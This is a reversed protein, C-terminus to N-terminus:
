QVAERIITTPSQFGGFSLNVVDAGRDVAWRIGAAVNADTAQGAADIVKVPLVRGRWMVGAMGRGDNGTAAAVTTVQTGHGLEDDPNDDDNVFDRGPLLRGALDPHSARVGSDVVALTLDDSGTTLDWAEPLRVLNANSAQSGAFRPDNPVAAVQRVHNPEATEVRGDAALESTVADVPRTGASFLLFDTGEVPRILAVGHDRAIREAAEAPVGPQLRVLVSM